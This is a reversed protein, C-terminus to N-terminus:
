HSRSAVSAIRERLDLLMLWDCVEPTESQEGAALRRRLTASDFGHRRELAEIQADLAAVEGNPGRTTSRVLEDLRRDREEPALAELDSLKVSANM